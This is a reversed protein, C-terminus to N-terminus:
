LFLVISYEIEEKGEFFRCDNGKIFCKFIFIIIYINKKFILSTNYM